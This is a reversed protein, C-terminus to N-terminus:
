IGSVVVDKFVLSPMRWSSYVWPDNAVEVLKNWFELHNGAINMEAVSQVPEGNEFLKGIIGISADGTTSNSNGGIFGTIFIGRGLDKMIEKVSRKGPPIILNSPGGTTPEWGLKRSYYWDVYFDKLVGSEIMTRKKTAFGDGDFLQSGLGGVVFPDDIITFYNSAIKKGKKDALFSRKQQISAGFMAQLFGNLISPVNRNEIIIPLTETKIKKGGLLDLTREAAEAGIKEPSPMDKRKVSVAYSSGMPRRDGEDQITAQAGAQYVTVEFYGEFGNSAMLIYEQYSDYGGATVSIVKPGAKQLCSEEVAKVVRHREEPTFKKYDPDVLGLDLEARGQYYKLDPLTRFPDEALLKTTAVAKSIFDNLADHRLDSTSQSSYRGNVFLEINLGRTSAEKINEPKRERYSINVFRENSISARCNEAGAAKAAQNAWAALDYLEKKM